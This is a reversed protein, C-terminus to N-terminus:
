SRGTDARKIADVTAVRIRDMFRDSLAEHIRRAAPTGLHLLAAPITVNAAMIDALAKATERPLVIMVEDLLPLPPDAPAPSSLCKTITTLSIGYHNELYRLENESIEIKM